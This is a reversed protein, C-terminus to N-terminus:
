KYHQTELVLLCRSNIADGSFPVNVNIINSIIFNKIDKNSNNNFALIEDEPLKGKMAYIIGNLKLLYKVGLVYDVLSAFARSIVADFLETPAYNEVRQHIIDVNELKLNTKVQRLFATKKNNSDLLTVKLDPRVIAIIIGPLGAGTGVDIINQLDSRIHKIISLSDLLHKIVIEFPDTIATLNYVKNWKLLLDFYNLLNQNALDDLNLGMAICGQVLLDKISKIDSNNNDSNTM